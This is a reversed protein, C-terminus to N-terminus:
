YGAYEQLSKRTEEHPLVKELFANFKNCEAQDDYKVELQYTFFDYPNYETLVADGGNIRLTGNSVNIALEKKRSINIDFFIAEMQKAADDRIKTVMAQSPSMGSKILITAALLKLVDPGLPQWYKGNFIYMIGNEFMLKCLSTSLRKKAENFMYFLQQPLKVTGNNGEQAALQRVNVFTIENILKSAINKIKINYSDTTDNLQQVLTEPLDTSSEQILFPNYEETIGFENAIWQLAPYFEINLASKVFEFIDGGCGCGFCFFSNTDPYIKLSEVKDKHFPCVMQLKDNVEYFKSIVDLIKVQEHIKKALGGSKIREHCMTMKSILEKKSLAELIFTPLEPLSIEEISRGKVWKYEHGSAHISPPLTILHKDSCIDIIPNGPDGGFLKQMSPISRADPYKYYLHYGRNTKVMPAPCPNQLKMFDVAEQNDLDVVVIGSVKGTIVAINPTFVYSNKYKDKGDIYLENYKQIIKSIDEPTQKRDQWDKWPIKPTTKPRFQPFVNFGLKNYYYMKQLM